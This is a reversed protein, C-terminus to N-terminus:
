SNKVIGFNKWPEILSSRAYETVAFAAPIFVINGILNLKLFPLGMAYSQMLGAFTDPYMNWSDLMWVGFNTYLYFFVAAVIGFGTQAGVLRLGSLEDRGRLMVVNVFGILAYASWTFLAITANGLLLDSIAMIALPVILGYRGGLYVAALLTAATVFEINPGIHLITRFLVATVILLISFIVKKVVNM